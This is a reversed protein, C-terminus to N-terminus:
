NFSDDPYSGIVPATSFFNDPFSSTLSFFKLLAPELSFSKGSMNFRPLGGYSIEGCITIDHRGTINFTKPIINNFLGFSIISSFTM